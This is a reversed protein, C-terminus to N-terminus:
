YEIVYAAGGHDEQSHVGLDMLARNESDEVQLIQHDRFSRRCSYMRRGTRALGNRPLHRVSSLHQGHRFKFPVSSSVRLSVCPSTTPDRLSTRKLANTSTQISPMACREDWLSDYLLNWSRGLAAALWLAGRAQRTGAHSIDGVWAEMETGGANLLIM